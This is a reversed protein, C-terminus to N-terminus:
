KGDRPHYHKTNDQAPNGKTEKHNSEKPAAGSIVAGGKEEVHSHPKAKKKSETAAPKAEASKDADSAAFGGTSVLTGIVFMSSAIKTKLKM